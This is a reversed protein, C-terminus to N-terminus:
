YARGGGPTASLTGTLAPSARYILVAQTVVSIVSAALNVGTAMGLRKPTCSLLGCKDEADMCAVAQGTRVRISWLLPHHVCAAKGISATLESMLLAVVESAPKLVPKLRFGLGLGMGISATLGSTLLAVVEPAPDPVPRFRFGLGLGMGISATLGSTLLAVVQPAPEPVPLAHRAPVVGWESFAGYAMQAVADGM